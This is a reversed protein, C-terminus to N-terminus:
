FPLKYTMLDCSLESFVWLDLSLGTRGPCLNPPEWPCIVCRLPSSSNSIVCVCVFLCAYKTFTLSVSKSATATVVRFGCFTYQQLSYIMIFHTCVGSKRSHDCCHHVLHSYLSYVYLGINIHKIYLFSTIAPYFVLIWLPWLDAHRILTCVCLHRKVHLGQWIPTRLKLHVHLIKPYHFSVQALLADAGGFSPRATGYTSGFLFLKHYNLTCSEFWRKDTSKFFLCGFRM